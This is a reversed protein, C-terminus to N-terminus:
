DNGSQERKFCACEIEVKILFIFVYSSAYIVCISYFICAVLLTLRYNRSDESVFDVKGPSQSVPKLLMLHNSSYIVAIWISDYLLKDKDDTFYIFV